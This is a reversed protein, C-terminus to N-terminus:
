GSITNTQPAIGQERYFRFRQRGLAKEADHNLILEAVRVFRAYDTPVQQCLSILLDANENYIPPAAEWGIQVPYRELDHTEDATGAGDTGHFVTHPVFSNQSFTWLMKDLIKSQAAADTQIYVKLGQAYAKNAIRCAYVYKDNIETQGLVYFDVRTSVSDTQAM